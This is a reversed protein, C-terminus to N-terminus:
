QKRCLVLEVSSLETSVGSAGADFHTRGDHENATSVFSFQFSQWEPTVRITEYLGLGNWPEHAQAFGLSLTRLECARATFRVTYREGAQVAIRPLNLQIDFAAQTSAQAIDIRVHDSSGGPFVLRAQNGGAARFLWKGRVLPQAAREGATWIPADGPSDFWASLRRDFEEGSWDEVQVRPFQFRDAGPGVLGAVTSCACEFDAEQVIAVTEASRSGYPYAFSAVRYGLIEELRARSEQIEGRQADPLWEPLAPHTVTHAGIEILGPCELRLLEAPSLGRYASRPTVGSRAWAALRDLVSGRESESLLQLLRWISSYVTHRPTPAEQGAKWVRHEGCDDETYRSSAGLEWQHECGQITLTLTEPLVGPELFVRELEDWWLGRSGEIFGTTVFVTAPIAYRELQPKAQELNDAYRDDFTLVVSRPLVNGDRVSRTLELLGILRADRRLIELQETFRPPSVCLSFPDAHVDAVRRYMLILAESRGADSM